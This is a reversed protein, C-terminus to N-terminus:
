EGGPLLAHKRVEEVSVLSSVTSSRMPARRPSGHGSGGGSGPSLAAVEPMPVSSRGQGGGAQQQQQQMMGIMSLSDFAVGGVMQYRGDHSQAVRLKPTTPTPPVLAAAQAAQWAAQVLQEQKSQGVPVAASNLSKSPISGMM